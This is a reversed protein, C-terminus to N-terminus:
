RVWGWTRGSFIARLTGTDVGFRRAIQKRPLGEADLRRIERINDETLKSHPHREGRTSRGRAVKDACNDAHTGVLLHAPNTCAPNDCTHRVVHGPPIDGHHLLYSYRHAQFVWVGRCHAKFNPYGQRSLGGSWGWCDNPNEGKVAMRWFREEVPQRAHGAIFRKPKTKGGCGCQCYGAPIEDAPTFADDM